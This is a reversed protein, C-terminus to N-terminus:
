GKSKRMLRGLEAKTLPALEGPLLGGLEIPGFALRVLREVRYGLSSFARRIERKRGEHLSLEVRKSGVRHVDTPRFPGDALPIGLELRKLAQPTLPRDLEVLYRRKVGFRPHSLRFALDGDDTLLMLGESDKDLRGVPFLRLGPPLFEHLTREAHPDALTSVVGRPKYFKYYHRQAPLRAEKGAVEVRDGTPDVQAWPETVPRGNVLVHGGKILLDARRRSAIGARQLFKNLRVALSDYWAPM